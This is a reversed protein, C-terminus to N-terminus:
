VVWTRRRLREREVDKDLRPSYTQGYHDYLAREDLVSMHGDPDINPADKVVNKAYSVLIRDGSVVAASVPVFTEKLGFLGTKIALWSPQGTEDDVYIQKLSGIKDGDPDVVDADRWRDWEMVQTNM